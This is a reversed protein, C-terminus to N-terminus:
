KPFDITYSVTEFADHVTSTRLCLMVFIMSSSKDFGQGGLISSPRSTGCAVASTSQM